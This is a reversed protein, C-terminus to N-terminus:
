LVPCCIARGELGALAGSRIFPRHRHFYSTQSSDHPYHLSRPRLTTIATTHSPTVPATTRLTRDLSHIQLVKPARPSYLVPVQHLRLCFSGLLTVQKLAAKPPPISWLAVPSVLQRSRQHRATTMLNSAPSRSKSDQDKPEWQHM